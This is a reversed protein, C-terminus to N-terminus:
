GGEEFAYLAPYAQLVALSEVEVWDDEGRKRASVVCVKETGDTLREAAAAFADPLSDFVDDVQRPHHLSIGDEDIIVFHTM